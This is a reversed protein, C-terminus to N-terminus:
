NTKVLAKLSLSGRPLLRGNKGLRRSPSLQNITKCTKGLDASKSQFFTWFGHASKTFHGWFAGVVFHKRTRKQCDELWRDSKKGALFTFFFM